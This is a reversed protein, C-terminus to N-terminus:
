RLSANIVASKVIMGDRSLSRAQEALFTRTDQISDFPVNGRASHEPDWQPCVYWGVLYLGHQCDNEKLYRGVLQTEMATRLKSHWCGKVEVIVRIQRKEGARSDTVIGVVHVGTRGGQGAGEGRCIEVERLAVIGTRMLDDQLHRKVYDSLHNEDKPRFREHGRTRDTQDWLDPAAPTEGQLKM